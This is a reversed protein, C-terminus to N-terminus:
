PDRVEDILQQSSPVEGDPHDLRLDLAQDLQGMVHGRELLGDIREPRSGRGGFATLQEFADMVSCAFQAAPLGRPRDDDHDRHAAGLVTREPRVLDEVREVVAAGLQM